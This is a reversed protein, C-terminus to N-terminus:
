PARPEGASRQAPDRQRPRRNWLGFRYGLSMSIRNQTYQLVTERVITMGLNMEYRLDFFLEGPGLTYGVDMGWIVGFPPRVRYPYTDQMGKIPLLPLIFYPGFYLSPRLKEFTMSAKLLLPVQLSIVRYLDNTFIRENEQQKLIFPKFFELNFGAETQISLFRLMRFETTLATELGISKISGSQYTGTGRIGYTNFSGGGRLGLYLRPFVPREDGGEKIVIEEVTEPTIEAQALELPIKVPEAINSFIWAVLPPLYAAAEEQNEFVMEDTYVLAGLSSNWLWLQFHGLLDSDLYYEGTLVFPSEGPISPDPPEDPRLKLYEPFQEASIPEPVFGSLVNIEGTTREQLHASVALDDGVFPMIAVPVDLGGAPATKANGGLPLFALFIFAACRAACLPSFRSHLSGRRNRETVKKMKREVNIGAKYILWKPAFFWV